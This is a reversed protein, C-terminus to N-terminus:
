IKQYKKKNKLHLPVAKKQISLHFFVKKNVIEFNLM